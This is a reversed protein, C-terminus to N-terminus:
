AEPLGKGAAEAIEWLIGEATDDLPRGWRPMAKTYRLVCRAASVRHRPATTKCVAMSMLERVALECRLADRTDPDNAEEARRALARPDDVPADAPRGELAHYLVAAMASAQRQEQAIKARMGSWGDPVGKRGGRKAPNDRLMRERNEQRRREYEEPTQPYLRSAAAKAPDWVKPAKRDFAPRWVRPRKGTQGTTTDTM